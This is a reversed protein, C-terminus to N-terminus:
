SNVTYMYIVQSVEDPTFDSPFLSSTPLSMSRDSTKRPPKLGKNGDPIPYNAVGENDMSTVFMDGEDQSPTFELSGTLMTDDYSSDKVHSGDRSYGLPPKGTPVEDMNPGSSGYDSTSSSPRISSSTQREFNHLVSAPILGVLPFVYRNNAKEHALINNIALRKLEYEETHRPSTPTTPRPSTGRPSHSLEISDLLRGSGTAHNYSDKRFLNQRKFTGVPDSTTAMMYSETRIRMHQDIVSNDFALSISTSRGDKEVFDENDEGDDVTHEGDDVMHEGNDMTHEGNDMTHEGNDVTHKGDDVMHEGNVVMHEGRDVMHGGNDMTTEGNDVMHIDKGLSTSIQELLSSNDERSEKLLNPTLSLTDREEASLVDSSTGSISACYDVNVISQM